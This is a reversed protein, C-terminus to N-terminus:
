WSNVDSTIYILGVGAIAGYVVGRAASIIINCAPLISAQIPLALSGGLWRACSARRANGANQAFAAVVFADIGVTRLILLRSGGLLSM